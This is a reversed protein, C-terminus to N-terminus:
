RPSSESPFARLLPVFSPDPPFTLTRAPVCSALADMVDAVRHDTALAEIVFPLNAFLRARLSLTPVPRLRPPAGHEPLLLAAIPWRGAPLTGYQTSRFPTSLAEFGGSASRAVVVLDDSLVDAGAERARLTWTTKGSGEAGILVFARGELVIGAAHLLAGARSPLRWAAAASVLNVLAFFQKSESTAALSVRVAGEHPVRAAGEAMEYRADGGDFRATMAKAGFPSTDDIPPAATAEVDLFWPAQSPADFARWAEHLRARHPDPLGRVRVALGSLDFTAEERAGSTTM